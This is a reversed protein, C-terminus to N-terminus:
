ISKGKKFLFATSPRNPTNQAIRDIVTVASLIFLLIYATVSQWDRRIIVM